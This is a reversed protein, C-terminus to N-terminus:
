PSGRVRDCVVALGYCAAFSLAALLPLLVDIM